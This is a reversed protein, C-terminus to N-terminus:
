TPEDAGRHVVMHRDFSQSRFYKRSGSFEDHCLVQVFVYAGESRKLLSEIELGFRRERIPYLTRVIAFQELRAEDPLSLTLVTSRKATLVFDDDKLLDLRFGAQGTLGAMVGVDPFMMLARYRLDVARRRGINRVLLRYRVEGSAVERRILNDGFVLKPVLVHATLYWIGVSIAAGGALGILLEVM